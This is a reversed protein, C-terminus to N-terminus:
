QEALLLICRKGSVPYTGPPPWAILRSLTFSLSKEPALEAPIRQVVQAPVAGAEGRHVEGERRHGRPGGLTANGFDM